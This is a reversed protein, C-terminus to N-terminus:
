AANQTSAPCERALKRLRHEARWGAREIVEEIPIDPADTAAFYEVMAEHVYDERDIGHRIPRGLYHAYAAADAVIGRVVRPRDPGEADNGAESRGGRLISAPKTLAMVALIHDVAKAARDSEQKTLHGLTISHDQRLDIEGAVPLVPRGILHAIGDSFDFRTSSTYEIVEDIHRTAKLKAKEHAKAIARERTAVCRPNECEPAWLGPKSSGKASSVIAYPPEPADCSCARTGVCSGYMVVAGGFRIPCTSGSKSKIKLDPRPTPTEIEPYTYPDLRVRVTGDPHIEIPGGLFLGGGEIVRLRPRTSAPAHEVSALVEAASV